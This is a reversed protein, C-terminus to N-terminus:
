QRSSSPPSRSRRRHGYGARATRKPATQKPRPPQSPPGQQRQQLVVPSYARSNVRTQCSLASYVADNRVSRAVRSRTVRKSKKLIARQQQKQPSAEEAADDSESSSLGQDRMASRLEMDQQACMGDFRAMDAGWAELNAMENANGSQEARRSLLRANRRNAKRAHRYMGKSCLASSQQMANASLIEFRAKSEAFQRQRTIPLRKTIVRLCRMGDMRKYNIQLQFPVHSLEPFQALKPGPHFEFMQETDATVNGIAKVLLNIDDDQGRFALGGHLLFRCEVNTALVPNRLVSAFNQSIREPDVRDVMGGTMEAVRGLDELACESGIISVVTVNTGAVMALAGLDEYWQRAAEREDANKTDLSGLGVNALGDTCVIVQSGPVAAAM